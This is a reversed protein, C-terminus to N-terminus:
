CSFGSGEFVGLVGVHHKPNYKENFSSTETLQQTDVSHPIEVHLVTGLFGLELTEGPTPDRREKRAHTLLKTILPKEFMYVM